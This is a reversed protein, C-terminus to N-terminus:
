LSFYRYWEAVINNYNAKIYELAKSLEADSLQSNNRCLEVTGNQKLWVKTANSLPKGKGIPIPELINGSTENSWFFFCLGLFDRIAKPM